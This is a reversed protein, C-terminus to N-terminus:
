LMTDVMSGLREKLVKQQLRRKKNKKGHKAVKKVRRLEEKSENKQRESLYRRSEVLKLFVGGPTRRVGEDTLMGGAEEVELTDQLLLIAHERGICNVVTSIVFENKEDFHECIKTIMSKLSVDKSKLSSIFAEDKTGEQPKSNDIDMCNDKLFDLDQKQPMIIEKETFSPVEEDLFEDHVSTNIIDDTWDNSAMKGSKLLQGKLVVKFNISQQVKSNFWDLDLM